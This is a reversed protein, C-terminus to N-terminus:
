PRMDLCVMTTRDRCLLKGDAIAIPAWADPGPVVKAKALPKYASANPEVITMEGTDSLVYLLGNAMVYPGLGFRATPGSAWVVSGNLDLCVLDAPVRVGYLHGQYLIPTQQHSQFVTPRIRKAVSVSTGGAGMQLIAAGSNYGGCVFIRGDSGLPVPTPVNATNVTWESTSWLLKGDAANVGAVGGSAPYVYIRKGAFQVPMISSHTMQWGRPNPTSWTVKGTPLHVAIMLAKGGPAIIANNNEILPCQGGYWTPIVTGYEKVLDKLWLRKGSNADCCMVQGMPGISVVHKGDTAPITRSIGHNSKIDVAYGESWLQKGTSLDLCRLEDRRAGVNYDLIYVRGKYVAAGAHGEGLNIQWLRRPGSAPFGRALSESSINMRGPGRFADWIASGSVNAAAGSSAAPAPMSAGPPPAAVADPDTAAAPPTDATPAAPQADPAPTTAQGQQGPVRSQVNVQPGSRTLALVVVVGVVLLLGPVGILVAWQGPSRKEGVGRVVLVDDRRSPGGPTSAM